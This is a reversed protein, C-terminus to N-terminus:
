SHRVNKTLLRGCINKSAKNKRAITSLCGYYFYAYKTKEYAKQDKIRSAFNLIFHGWSIKILSPTPDNIVWDHKVTSWSAKWCLSQRRQPYVKTVSLSHGLSQRRQPYGQTALISKNYNGWVWIIYRYLLNLLGLSDEM